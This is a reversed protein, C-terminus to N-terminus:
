PSPAPPAAPTTLPVGECLRRRVELDSRLQEDLQEAPLRGALRLAEGLDACAAEDDGALSHLLYRDNRPGPDDPFAKVVEDCLTIQEQLRDLTVNRLCDDSRVGEDQPLPQESCGALALVILLLPGVLRTPWAETATANAM